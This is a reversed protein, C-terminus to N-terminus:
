RAALEEVRDLDSAAGTLRGSFAAALLARRLSASRRRAASSENGLRRLSTAREGHEAILRDQEDLSPTPIVVGDLKSLSLNYQGASSAALRELVVRTEPRALMLSVWEPRVRAPDLRYRILYSAFAAKIGEQVVASRGILSRSGNTRVILLDGASLMSSSVDVSRDAVRKEDTLNIRRDLVNPIRVVAPGPGGAVCKTSTGYGSDLALAGLTAVNTGSVLARTLLSADLLTIRRQATDISRDAADLRSLHDELIDVIRGQEALPPVAVRVADFRGRTIHVMGSGHAHRQMEALSYDLLYRHFRRDINSEVKFIHQNLVAEPGRWVYAGLTAAWSVLLDGERVIYREDVEGDFYNFSGGSGTLNQIRVIPRGASGWESTKFARGNLYRGLEGITSARWGDPVESM